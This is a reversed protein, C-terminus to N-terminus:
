DQEGTQQAIQVYALRLQALAERLTPEEAIRDGLTEVMAGMADLALKAEDLQPPETSLHIAGLEYLGMAHNAVVRSAPVEALRQRAEAMQQEMEDVLDPDFDPDDYPDYAREEEGPSGVQDRDIPHEGDPTWLSSM